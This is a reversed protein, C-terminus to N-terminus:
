AIDMNEEQEQASATKYSGDEEVILLPWTAANRDITHLDLLNYTDIRLMYM